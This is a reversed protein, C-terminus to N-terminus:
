TSLDKFLLRTTTVTYHPPHFFLLCTFDFSSHPLLWGVKIEWLSSELARCQAPDEEEMSYPDNCPEPPLLCASTMLLPMEADNVICVGSDKDSIVPPLWGQDQFQNSNTVNTDCVLTMFSM